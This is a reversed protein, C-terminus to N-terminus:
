PKKPKVPKPNACKRWAIGYQQKLEGDASDVTLLGRGQVRISTRIMLNRVKGECPSFEVQDLPSIMRHFYDQEQPGKIEIRGIEREGGRFFYASRQFGTAKKRLNAFGRVDFSFLAFSWGEPVHMDVAINCAKMAPIPEPSSDPDPKGRNSTDVVYNDFLLTFAQADGAVQSAVSGPRCGSGQYKIKEIFIQSPDPSEAFVPVAVMWLSLGLMWKAFNM